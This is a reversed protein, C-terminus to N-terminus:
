QLTVASAQPALIPVMTESVPRQCHQPRHKSPAPDLAFKRMSRLAPQLPQLWSQSGVFSTTQGLDAVPKGKVMRPATLHQPNCTPIYGLAYNGDGASRHISPKEKPSSATADSESSCAAPTGAGAVLRQLMHCHEAADPSNSNGSHLSGLRPSRGFEGVAVVLTHKLDRAPEMDDLLASLGPGAQSLAPEEVPSTQLRAHGPPLRRTAM